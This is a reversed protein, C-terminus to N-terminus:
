PPSRASPSPYLSPAAPFKPRASTSHQLHPQSLPASIPSSTTPVAFCLCVACVRLVDPKWHLASSTQFNSSRRQTREELMDKETTVQRRQCVVCKKKEEKDEGEEVSKRATGDSAFFAEALSCSNQFLTAM